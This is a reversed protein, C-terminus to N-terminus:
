RIVELVSYDTYIDGFGNVYTHFKDIIEMTDPFREAHKLSATTIHDDEAFYKDRTRIDCVEALLLYKGTREGRNGKLLSFTWGTWAVVAPLEDHVFAEFEAPTVGDRLELTHISYIKSM